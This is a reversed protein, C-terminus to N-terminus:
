ISKQKNIYMFVSMNYIDPYMSTYNPIGFLTITNLTVKLLIDTIDHRYTIDTSSFSNGTTFGRGTALWWCVKDCLTTDLEGQAPNSSVVYTTIYVSQM